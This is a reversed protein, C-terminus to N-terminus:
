FRFEINNLSITRSPTCFLSAISFKLRNKWKSSFNKVRFLRTEIFNKRILFNFVENNSKSGTNSIGERYFFKSVMTNNDHSIRIHISCMNSGKEKCEKVPVKSWKNIVSININGIRWEILKGFPFIGPIHVIIFFFYGENLFLSHGSLPNLSILTKPFHIRFLEPFSRHIRTHSLHKTNSKLISFKCILYKSGQHTFFYKRSTSKNLTSCFM